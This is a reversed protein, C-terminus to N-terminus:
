APKAVPMIPRGTALLWCPLVVVCLLPLLQLDPVLVAAMSLALWGQRTVAVLMGLV